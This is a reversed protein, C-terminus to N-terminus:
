INVRVKPQAVIDARIMGRRCALNKLGRSFHRFVDLKKM